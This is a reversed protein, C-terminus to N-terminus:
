RKVNIYINRIKILERNSETGDIPDWRLEGTNTGEQWHGPNTEGNIDEVNRVTAFAGADPQQDLRIPTDIILNATDVGLAHLARRIVDGGYQAGAGAPNYISTDGLM